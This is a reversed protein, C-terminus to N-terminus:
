AARPGPLGPNERRVQSRIKRAQQESNALGAAGLATVIDSQIPQHNLRLWLERVVYQPTGPEYCVVPQEPAATPAPTAEAEPPTVTKATVTARPTRPTATAAAVPHRPTAPPLEHGTHLMAALATNAGEVVRINQVDTLASGLTADGHGLQGMLRWAVLASYRRVWKWPHRDARARHYAIRRLIAANRRQAEVDVDTRYVVVRRALLGIGEAAGCMGLPTLAYLIRETLTDAVAVGMTSAALPGLWLFVRVVVPSSQGLMTLVLMVLAAVLTVGEGAAVAGAATAARGFEAVINTYTGWGGFGGVAIMPITALALVIKQGRTLTKM